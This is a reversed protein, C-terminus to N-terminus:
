AHIQSASLLISLLSSLLLTRVSGFHHFSHGICLIHLKVHFKVSQCFTKFASFQSRYSESKRLAKQTVKVTSGQSFLQVWLSLQHCFMAHTEALTNRSYNWFSANRCPSVALFQCLAVETWTQRLGATDLKDLMKWTLYIGWCNLGGHVLLRAYFPPISHQGTVFGLIHRTMNIHPRLLGHGMKLAAPYQTGPSSLHSWIM